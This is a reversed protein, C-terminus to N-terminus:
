SEDCCCCCAYPPPACTCAICPRYNHWALRRVGAGNALRPAHHSLNSTCMFCGAFIKHVAGGLCFLLFVKYCHALPPHLSSRALSFSSFLFSFLFSILFSSFSSFSSFSLSCILFLYLSLSLALAVSLRASLCISIYLHLSSFVCLSLSLSLCAPLCPLRLFSFIFLSNAVTM